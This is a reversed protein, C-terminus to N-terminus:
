PGQRRRGGKWTHMFPFSLPTLSPLPFGLECNGKGGGKVEGGGIARYPMGVGQPITHEKVLGMHGMPNDPAGLVGELSGIGEPVSGTDSYSRGM